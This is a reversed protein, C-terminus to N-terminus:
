RRLNRPQDQQFEPQDCLHHETGAAHHDACQFYKQERECAIEGKITMKQIQSASQCSHTYWSTRALWFKRGTLRNM